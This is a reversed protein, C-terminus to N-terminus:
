KKYEGKYNVWTKVYGCKDCRIRYVVYEGYDWAIYEVHSNFCNECVIDVENDRENDDIEIM